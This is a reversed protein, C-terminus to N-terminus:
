TAQLAVQYWQDLSTRAKPYRKVLAEIMKRSIVRMRKMNRYHFYILLSSLNAIEAWGGGGAFLSFQGM